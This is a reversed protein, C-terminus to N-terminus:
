RGHVDGLLNDSQNVALIEEVRISYNGNLTGYKCNFLPMGDVEATIVPKIDIPIVDGVKMHLIDQLPIQTNALNAVLEVEAIQVQKQLMGLWRKDSEGQEGQIANYLLDRVPEIGSYPIMIHMAGGANGLEINFTSTIVIESPTAVNAFQTHMESRLYDFKLPYVPAWAKQYEDMVMELMRTIIRLETPSFDRGEIRTKFRGDGGFMNDIVLFVLNPDMVILASGRLPRMQLINLNTPVVLNKLFESYKTVKIQDISIEPSRRLFNFIGIRLNRAFRDNIIEMTPMRGRVIREQKAINYPRVGAAPAEQEVEDEEGNVGKLLADVEDQSLFKDGSM